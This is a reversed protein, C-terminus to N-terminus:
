RTDDDLKPEGKWERQINRQDSDRQPVFPKTVPKPKLTSYGMERTRVIDEQLTHPKFYKVWGRLPKPLAESFFMVLRHESINSITV